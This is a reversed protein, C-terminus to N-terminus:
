KAKVFNTTAFITEGNETTLTLIMPNDNKPWNVDKGYETYTRAIGIVVCNGYKKDDDIHVPIVMQGLIFGCSNALEKIIKDRRLVESWSSGGNSAQQNNYVVPTTKPFAPIYPSKRNKLTFELV